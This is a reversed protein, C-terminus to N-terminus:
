KKRRGQSGQGFDLNNLDINEMGKPLNQQGMGPMGPMGGGMGMQQQLQQLQDMNPMGGGRQAAARNKNKNKGKKGKKGKRGKKQKKTASGGGMGFRSTMKSMMKKAEFFREVLRNVDQVTVGSGAAIRRRRSANLIKPDNREAPTMGRIIAQIRDLQKEDVMDAMKSMESGGPLMKLIAGMPGMRRVMLMQELFDDLTLEGSFMKSASREAEQQNIKQEAQEILTLVDGM